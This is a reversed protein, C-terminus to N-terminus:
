ELISQIHEMMNPIANSISKTTGSNPMYLVLLMGGSEVKLAVSMTWENGYGNVFLFMGDDMDVNVPAYRELLFDTIANVYIYSLGFGVGKMKGNEFMYIVHVGEKSDEYILSTDDESVLVRREKAKIEYKSAGFDLIPEVFTNYKPKVEVACRATESGNSAIIFTKGVHRGEVVGNGSVTAVFENESSWTVNRELDSAMLRVEDEYYLSIESKDLFLKVAKDEESCSTLLVMPLLALLFCIKRM